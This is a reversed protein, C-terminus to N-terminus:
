DRPPPVIPKAIGPPLKSGSPIVPEDPEIAETPTTSPQGPEPKAPAPIGANLAPDPASDTETDLADNVTADQSTATEGTPPNENVLPAPAPAPAERSNEPTLAAQVILAVGVVLLAVVGLSLLARISPRRHHRTASNEDM